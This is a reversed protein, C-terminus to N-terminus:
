KPQPITFSKRPPPPPNADVAFAQSEERTSSPVSAATTAGVSARNVTRYDSTHKKNLYEEVKKVLPGYKALEGLQANPDITQVVDLKDILGTLDSTEAAKYFASKRVDDIAPVPPKDNKLAIDVFNLYNKKMEIGILSFIGERLEDPTVGINPNRSYAMPVLADTLLQGAKPRLASMLASYARDFWQSTEVDPISQTNRYTVNLGMVLNVLDQEM